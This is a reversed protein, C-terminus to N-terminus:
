EGGLMPHTYTNFSVACTFNIIICYSTNSPITLHHRCYDNCDEVGDGGGNDDGGDGGGGSDVSGDGSSGGDEDGRGDGSGKSRGDSGCM